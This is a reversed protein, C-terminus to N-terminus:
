WEDIICVEIKDLESETLVGQIRLDSLFTATVPTIYEQLISINQVLAHRINVPTAM